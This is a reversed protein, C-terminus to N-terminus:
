EESITVIRRCGPGAIRSRGGSLPTVQIQTAIREKLAAVHSIVGILKGDQRLSALTELATELSEEDLTGFGEDLFLSDVRVNRSAMHSLGLALALSVIFSEGGSLNKTSREEGAQYNDIVNLELPQAKDRVLLYRDTMRSLQRTAYGVMVEFTLGQAFNRYKKGDGSGILDRLNDWRRCEATQADIGKQRDRIRDRAESNQRLRSRLEAILERLERLRNACETREAELETRPRDTVQRATEMGLRNERDTRRTNLQTRREDLERAQGALAARREAPIRAALFGPEDTFGAPGLLATFGTEAAQRAQEQQEIGVALSAVRTRAATWEDRRKDHLIRAQREAEEAVSVSRNLRTEEEEPKRDDFLARRQDRTATLEQNLSELRGQKGDLETQRSEIVADLRRIEGDHATIRTEIEAKRKGTELWTRLRDRLTNLLPEIGTEPIDPIGLPRLHNAAAERRKDFDDQLTQRNERLDALVKDATKVDHEAAAEQKEAETLRSRAATEGDVLARVANDQEEAQDITRTLAEIRREIDDPVPVNGAAFPHELAGCLPCPKGDELQARHEELQAIRARYMAERQLAEKEARYERLMREGLLLGLTERAQRLQETVGDLAERSEKTKERCSELAKAARVADQSAKEHDAEKLRLEKQREILTKLQEEVGALGGVLWEDRAREELSRTVNKLEEGAADRKEREAQVATRDKGIRDIDKAVEAANEAVTRAQADISQDLLRVQQLLPAATKLQEKAEATKRGAEGLTEELNRVDAELGPLAAQESSLKVRDDALRKRIEALTAYEGDLGAAREARALAERDPAFTDTETRLRTDEEELGAVERRLGEVTEIWAIAAAAVKDRETQEAEERAKEEITQGIQAEQEPDLVTIGAIEAQLQELKTREERSREHVRISIRSYIETGTIQELIPAREDPAAQLFAAFGGQALLMSRTFRDFDMGTAQEIQEAVGRIKSEIIEGTDADAIEHKPLQLEGEPRRRARHQSWHCRFRGAQTEFTVEAFCEGTQRSMIENGSKTVRSLRPTRGYLALCVADLITSKGAGTPGTIAFIGDSVYAPHTLDIEWEGTLSNLNKFRIRLVRM